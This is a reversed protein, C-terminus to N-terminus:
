GSFFGEEASSTTCSVGGRAGPQGANELVLDDVQDAFFTALLGGILEFGHRGRFVLAEIALAVPADVRHIPLNM